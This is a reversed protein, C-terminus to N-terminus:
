IQYAWNTEMERISLPAAITEGSLHRAHALALKASNFLGDGTTGFCNGAGILDILGYNKMVQWLEPQVGCLVVHGSRALLESAFDELVHLITSDVSHTRRLRFIVIKPDKSLIKTLRNRLEDAM